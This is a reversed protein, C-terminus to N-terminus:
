FHPQNHHRNSPPPNRLSRRPQEASQPLNDATIIKGQFAELIFDEFSQAPWEPQVLIDTRIGCDYGPLNQLRWMETWDSYALQIAVDMSTRWASHEDWPAYSNILVLHQGDIDMGQYLDARLLLSPRRIQQEVLGTEVLQWHGDSFMVRVNQVSHQKDPHLRFPFLPCNTRRIFKVTPQEADMFRALKPSNDASM